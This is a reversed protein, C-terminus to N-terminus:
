PARWEYVLARSGLLETEGTLRSGLALAVKVSRENGQRILSIVRDRGLTERGYRLAVRAAEIAYGNGWHPRGLVWGLEFGPWGEPNIFGARGVLEGGDKREVAWMGYGRLEWHGLMSAMARWAEGRNQTVGTGLYRMVEPDACFSAYADLHDNRFACLRLRDTELTPIVMGEVLAQSRTEVAM